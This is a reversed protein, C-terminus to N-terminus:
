IKKFVMMEQSGAFGIKLTGGIIQYYGNVDSKLWAKRSFEVPEGVKTGGFVSVKFSCGEGLTYSGSVENVFTHGTITGEKSNDEFTFIIGKGDPEPDSEVQGNSNNEYGTLWWKGKLTHIESCVPPVCCDRKQECQFATLGFLLTIAIFSIYKKM